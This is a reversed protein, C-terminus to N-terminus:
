ANYSFIRRLLLRVLDQEQVRKSKEQELQQLAVQRKAVAAALGRTNGSIGQVREFEAVRADLSRGDRITVERGQAKEFRDMYEGLEKRYAAILSDLDAESYASFPRPESKEAEVNRKYNWTGMGVILALALTILMRKRARRKRERRREM